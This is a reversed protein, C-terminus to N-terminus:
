HQLLSDTTDKNYLQEFKKADDSLPRRVYVIRHPNDNTEDIQAKKEDNMKRANICPDDSEFLEKLEQEAPKNLLLETITGSEQDLGPCITEDKTVPTSPRRQPQAPEVEKPVRQQPVTWKKPSRQRSQAMPVVPPQAPVTPPQVPPAPPESTLSNEKDQICVNTTMFITTQGGGNLALPEVTLLLALNPYLYFLLGSLETWAISVLCIVGASVLVLVPIFAKMLLESSIILSTPLYKWYFGQAVLCPCLLIIWVLCAFVSGNYCLFSVTKTSLSECNNEEIWRSQWPRLWREFIFVTTSREQAPGTTPRYTSLIVIDLLINIIMLMFMAIQSTHILLASLHQISQVIEIPTRQWLISVIQAAFETYLYLGSLCVALFGVSSLVNKRCVYGDLKEVKGGVCGNQNDPLCGNNNKIMGM